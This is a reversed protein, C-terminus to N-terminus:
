PHQFMNNKAIMATGRASKRGCVECPQTVHNLCGSHSCPQGDKYQIHTEALKRMGAETIKAEIEGIPTRKWDYFGYEMACAGCQMEGDDGYQGKHGHDLWLMKRLQQIEMALAVIEDSHGTETLYKEYEAM